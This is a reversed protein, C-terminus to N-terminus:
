LNENQNREPKQKRSQVRLEEMYENQATEAFWKLYELKHKPCLGISPKDCCKPCGTVEFTM